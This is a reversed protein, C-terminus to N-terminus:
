RKDSADRGGDDQDADVQGRRERWSSRPDRGERACLQREQDRRGGSIGQHREADRHAFGNGAELEADAVQISVIEDGGKSAALLRKSMELCSTVGHRRGDARSHFSAQPEFNSDLRVVLGYSRSPAWPKLVGLQMLEGVQMPELFSQPPSLSPAIWFQPAIERMMQERYDRERLVFEVLQSRPAFVALWSGAGGEAPSLRAPYGTIDLLAPSPRNGAKLRVLRNRWSESIVIAGDPTPLLGFPWALRDALCTGEGSLLDVTWVSGSANREMLDRKWEGASHKQSGLALLLTHEDALHLATPCVIPRDGVSDLRKGDHPGGRLEIRGSELGVAMGGGRHLALASVDSDFAAFTEASGSAGDTRLVYVASGSSFFVRTGDSALNDPAAVGLVAPSEEIARNPHLAGDM